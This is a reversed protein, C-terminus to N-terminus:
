YLEGALGIKNTSNGGGSDSRCSFYGEDEQTLTITIEGNTPSGEQFPVPSDQDPTRRLFEADTLLDGFSKRCSLTVKNYDEPVPYDAHVNPQGEVSCVVALVCIVQVIALVRATM